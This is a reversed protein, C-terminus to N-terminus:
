AVESTNRLPKSLRSRAWSMLEEPKYLVRAGYKQFKPGGGLCALKALTSTATPFGQETLFASSAPRSLLIDKAPLTSEM